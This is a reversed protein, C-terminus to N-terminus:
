NPRRAAVHRASAPTDASRLRAAVRAARRAQPRRAWEAETCRRAAGIGAHRGIEIARRRASRAQGAAAESM